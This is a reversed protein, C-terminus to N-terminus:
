SATWPRSSPRRRFRTRLAELMAGGARRAAGRRAAGGPVDVRQDPRAAPRGGRPDGGRQEERRSRPRGEGSGRQVARLRPGEAPGADLVRLEERGGQLQRRRAAHPVSGEQRLGRAYPWISSRARSPASLDVKKTAQVKGNASV